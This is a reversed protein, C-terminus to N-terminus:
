HLFKIPRSVLNRWDLQNARHINVRSQNDTVNTLLSIPVWKPFLSGNPFYPGMQFCLMVRGRQGCKILISFQKRCTYTVM